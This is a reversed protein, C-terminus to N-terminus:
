LPTSESCPMKIHVNMMFIYLRVNCGVTTEPNHRRSPQSSVNRLLMSGGNESRRKIPSTHEESVNTGVGLTGYDLLDDRFTWM